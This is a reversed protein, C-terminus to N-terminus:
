GEEPERYSPWYCTIIKARDQLRDFALGGLKAAAETPNDANLTLWTSRMHHYRRNVLDYLMEAHWPALCERQPVIPDSIVLISPKALREVEYGIAGEAGKLKMRDLLEGFWRHGNVWRGELGHLRAALYLLAIAFHDKGTGKPGLFLLGRGEAVMRALDIARLQKLIERQGEHYVKFNDLSIRKQSYRPGVDAEIQEARIQRHL